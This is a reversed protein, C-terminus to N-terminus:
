KGQEQAGSRRQQIDLFRAIFGDEEAFDGVGYRICGFGTREEDYMAIQGMDARLEDCDICVKYAAPTGDWVGSHRNYKEGAAIVGGCECCKHKKRAKPTAMSYAQPMECSM